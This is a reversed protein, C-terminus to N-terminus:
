HDVGKTRQSVILVVEVNVVPERLQLFVTVIEHKFQVELQLRIHLDHLALPVAEPICQTVDAAEM